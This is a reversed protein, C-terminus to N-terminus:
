SSIFFNIGMFSDGLVLTFIESILATNISGNKHTVKIISIYVLENNEDVHKIVNIFNIEANLAHFTKKLNTIMSDTIFTYSYVSFKNKKLDITTFNKKFDTSKTQEIFDHNIDLKNNFNNSDYIKQPNIILHNELDDQIEVGVEPNLFTIFDKPSMHLFNKGDTKEAYEILLEIKSSLIKKNEGKNETYAWDGKQDGSVFIVNEKLFLIDHWIIYDGEANENGKNGDKYGPPIKKDFRELGTKKIQEIGIDDNSIYVCDISIKKIFDFYPDSKFLNTLEVKISQLNKRLVKVSQEHKLRAKETDSYSASNELIPVINELKKITNLKSIEMEIENMKDQIITPRNQTFERIVQLPIKLRGVKHFKELSNKVEKMTVSRWQYAALLFNADPIVTPNLTLMDENSLSQAFYKDINLKHM